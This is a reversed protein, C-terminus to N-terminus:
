KEWLMDCSVVPFVFLYIFWLAQNTKPSCVKHDLQFNKISVLFVFSIIHCLIKIYNECTIGQLEKYPM